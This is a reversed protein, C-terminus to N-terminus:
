SPLNRCGPSTLYWCEPASLCLLSVSISVSFSPLVCYVSISSVGLYLRQLSIVLCIVSFLDFSRESVRCWLCVVCQLWLNYHRSTSDYIFLHLLVSRHRWYGLVNCTPTWFHCIVYLYRLTTFYRLRQVNSTMTPNFVDLMTCYSLHLPSLM